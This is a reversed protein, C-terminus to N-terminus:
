KGKDFADRIRVVFCFMKDAHGFGHDFLKIPLNWHGDLFEHLKRSYPSFRRIYNRGNDVPLGVHGDVRM